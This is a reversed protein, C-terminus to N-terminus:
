PKKKGGSSYNFNQLYRLQRYVKQPIVNPHLSEIMQGIFENMFRGEIYRYQKFDINIEVFGTNTLGTTDRHLIGSSNQIFTKMRIYFNSDVHYNVEGFEDGSLPETRYTVLPIDGLSFSCNPSFLVSSVSLFRIFHKNATDLHMPLLLTKITLKVSSDNLRINERFYIVKNFLNSPGYSIFLKRKNYVTDYLILNEATDKTLFEFTENVKKLQYIVKNTKINYIVLHYGSKTMAISFITRQHPLITILAMKRMDLYTTHASLDYGRGMQIQALAHGGILILIAFNIFRLLM